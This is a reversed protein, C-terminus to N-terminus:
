YIKIQKSFPTLRLKATKYKNQANQPPGLILNERYGQSKRQNMYQRKKQISCQSGLPGKKRLIDYLIGNRDLFKGIEWYGQSPTGLGIPGPKSSFWESKTFSSFIGASKLSSDPNVLQTLKRSSPYMDDTHEHFIGLITLQVRLQQAYITNKWWFFPYGEIQLNNIIKGKLTANSYVGHESVGVDYQQQYM